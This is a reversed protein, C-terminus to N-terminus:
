GRSDSFLEVRRQRVSQRTIRLARAIDADSVGSTLAERIANEREVRLSALRDTLRRLRAIHDVTDLSSTDPDSRVPRAHTVVPGPDVPRLPPRAVPTSLGSRGKARRDRRNM